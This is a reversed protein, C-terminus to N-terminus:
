ATPAAGLHSKKEHANAVDIRVVYPLCQGADYRLPDPTIVVVHRVGTEATAEEAYAKHWAYDEFAATLDRLM